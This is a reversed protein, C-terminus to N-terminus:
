PGPHAHGEPRGLTLTCRAQKAVLLGSELGSVLGMGVGVGSWSCMRILKHRGEQAAEEAEQEEDDEQADRQKHDAAPSHALRRAAHAVAAVM